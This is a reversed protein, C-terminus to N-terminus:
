NKKSKIEVQMQKEEKEDDKFNEEFGSCSYPMKIFGNEILLLGLDCEGRGSYEDVQKFYLHKCYHCDSM